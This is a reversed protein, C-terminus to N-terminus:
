TYIERLRALAWTPGLVDTSDVFQDVAGVHPPLHKVQEDTIAARLAEVFDDSHPVLYPREHFLMVETPQPLIVGLANHMEAVATYAQSLHGEREKWTNGALAGELMPALRPACALRNFATGFWKTYPAYIREILFCLNMVDRVLRAALLRSGIEDGVDGSRAMFPGEQSIRQWQCALLYLWLDHPYYHLRERIAVLEDLGDHFVKGSTTERLKQQPTTLWEIVSLESRPDFGLQHQYYAKITHINVAHNIPGETPTEMGFTNFHTSYGHIERPLEESLVRVIADRYRAHDDDSVFVQLMPGWGHDTSRPTDFGLVDSGPGLRAASYVLQPFRREIIPRVAETYFLESLTLGPIFPSDTSM